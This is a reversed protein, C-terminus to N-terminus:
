GASADSRGELGISDHTLVHITRQKMLASAFPQDRIIPFSSSTGSYPIGGHLAMGNMAAAM